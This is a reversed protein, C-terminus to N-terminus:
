LVLKDSKVAIDALGLELLTTLDAGAPIKYINVASSHAGDFM